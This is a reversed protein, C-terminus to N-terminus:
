CNSSPQRCCILQVCQFVLFFWLPFFKKSRIEHECIHISYYCILSVLFNCSLMIWSLGDIRFGLNVGPFWQFSYVLKDGSFVAPALTISLIFVLGSGVAGILGSKEQLQDGFIFIIILAALLPLPYLWFLEEM